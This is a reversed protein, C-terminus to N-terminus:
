SFPSMVTDLGAGRVVMHKPVLLMRARDAGNGAGHGVGNGIDLVDSAWKEDTAAWASDKMVPWSDSRKLSAAVTGARNSGKRRFSNPVGHRRHMGKIHMAYRGILLRPHITVRFGLGKRLGLFLGRNADRGM